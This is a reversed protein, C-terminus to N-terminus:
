DNNLIMRRLRKMLILGIMVLFLSVQFSYTINNFNGYDIIFGSRLYNMIHLLPNYELYKRIFNPIRDIPFFVGSLLYFARMILPVLAEIIKFKGKFPLYLLGIGMGLFWANIFAFIIRSTSIITIDYELFYLTIIFIVFASIYIVLELICRALAFDLINIQSFVLLSQNGSICDSTKNFCNRFVFFPLLGTVLFVPTSLEGYSRHGLFTWLGWMVVIHMLVEGFAWLIGLSQEGFRTKTERFILAALTQRQVSVAKRWPKWQQSITKRLSQNKNLSELSYGM